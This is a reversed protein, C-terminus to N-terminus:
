EELAAMRKATYLVLVMCSGGRLERTCASTSALRQQDPKQMSRKHWSLATWLSSCEMQFYTFHLSLHVKVSLLKCSISDALQLGTKCEWQTEGVMHRRTPTPPHTPPPWINLFTFCPNYNTYPVFSQMVHDNQHYECPACSAFEPVPSQIYLHESQNFVRSWYHM